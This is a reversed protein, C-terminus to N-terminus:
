AGFMDLVYTTLFGEHLDVRLGKAVGLYLVTTGIVGTILANRWSLQAEYHLFAVLFIPITFWFGFVLVSSVFGLFYSWLIIERHVMNPPIGADLMMPIEVATAAESEVQRGAYRSVEDQAKEVDSRTDEVEAVNRRAARIDLFIQVICLAIAPIGVVFPMFRAQPPYQTAIGVLTVFIALMVFNMVFSTSKM